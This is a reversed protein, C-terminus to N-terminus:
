LGLLWWVVAGLVMGFVFAVVIAPRPRGRRRLDGMPAGEVFARLVFAGSLM